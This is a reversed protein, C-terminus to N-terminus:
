LSQVIATAEDPLTFFAGCWRIYPKNTNVKYVQHKTNLSGTIIECWIAKGKRYFTYTSTKTTLTKM